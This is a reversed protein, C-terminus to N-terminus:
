MRRPFIRTLVEFHRIRPRNQDITELIDELVSSFSLGIFSLVDPLDKIKLVRNNEERKRDDPILAERVREDQSSDQVKPPM